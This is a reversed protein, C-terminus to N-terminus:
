NREFNLIEDDDDDDDSLRIRNDSYEIVYWDETLENLENSPTSFTIYFELDDDDLDDDDDFEIRWSGNFSDTANDALISGDSNFTFVFGNFNATEDDGDDVFRSVRWDGNQAASELSAVDSNDFQGVIPGDDNDDCSMGAIVAITLCLVNWYKIKMKM